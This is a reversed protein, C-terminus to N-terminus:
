DRSTESGNNAFPQSDREDTAWNACWAALSTGIAFLVPKPFSYLLVATVGLLVLAVVVAAILPMITDEPSDGFNAFMDDFKNFLSVFPDGSPTTAALVICVFGLLLVGGSILETAGEFLAIYGSYVVTSAGLVCWFLKM